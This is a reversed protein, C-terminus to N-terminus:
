RGKEPKTEPKAKMETKAPGASSTSPLTNPNSPLSAMLQKELQLILVKMDELSHQMALRVQTGEQEVKLSNIFRGVQAKIVQTDADDQDNPMALMSGMPVFGKIQEAAGKALEANGYTMTARLLLNQADEGLVLGAQTMGGAPPTAPADPESAQSLDEAMLQTFDSVKASVTTHSLPTAKALATLAAPFPHSPSKQNWCALALPLERIPAIVMVGNEPMFLAHDAFAELPLDTPAALNAGLVARIVTSLEWATGGTFAIPSANSAKAFTEFAAKKGEHQYVAFCAFQPGSGPSTADLTIRLGLDLQRNGEPTLGLRAQLEQNAKAGAPDLQTAMVEMRKQMAKLTPALQSKGATDYSIRTALSVNEPIGRLTENAFAFTVLLLPLLAPFRM